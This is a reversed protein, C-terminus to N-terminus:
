IMKSRYAIKKIFWIIVLLFLPTRIIYSYVTAMDGRFSSIITVASYIYVAAFYPNDCSNRYLYRILLACLIFIVIVGVIGSIVYGEGILTFARSWTSGHYFYDNYWESMNWASVDGFLSNMFRAPLVSSLLDTFLVSFGKCGSLEPHTTLVQLNSGCDVFDSYLFEYLTNSFAFTGRNLMGTRLYYKFYNLVIMGAIGAPIIIILQKFGIRGTMALCLVLIIVLRLIADREGTLLSFFLTAALACIIVTKKKKLNDGMFALIAIIYANFRTCYTALIWYMNHEKWQISKLTVGQRFLLYSTVIQVILFLWMLYSLVRIDYRYEEPNSLSNYDFKYIHPNFSLLSVGLAVITLLGCEANYGKAVSDSPAIILIIMYACNYLFFFSSFWFYPHSFNFESQYVAIATLFMIAILHVIMNDSFLIAILTGIFALVIIIYRKFDNFEIIM